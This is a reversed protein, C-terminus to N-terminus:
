TWFPITTFSHENAANHRCKIMPRTPYPPNLAPDVVITSIIEDLGFDSALQTFLNDSHPAIYFIESWLVTGGRMGINIPLSTTPNLASLYDTQIIAIM